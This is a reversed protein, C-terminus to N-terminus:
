PVDDASESAQKASSQIAKCLSHLGTRCKYRALLFIKKLEDTDATASIHGLFFSRFKHDNKVLKAVQPLSHWNSALLHVVAEDFGEAIGGDDCQAYHKFGSYIAPWTKMFDTATEAAQVDAESCETAADCNSTVLLAILLILIRM